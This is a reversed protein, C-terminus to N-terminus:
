GKSGSQDEQGIPQFQLTMMQVMYNPIIIELYFHKIEEFLQKWHMLFMVMLKRSVADSIVNIKSPHYQLIINYDM